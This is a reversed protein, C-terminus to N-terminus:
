NIFDSHYFHQLHPSLCHTRLYWTVFWSHFLSAAPLINWLCQSVLLLLVLHFIPKFSFSLPFQLSFLRFYLKLFQLSTSCRASIASCVYQHCGTFISPDTQINMNTIGLSKWSITKVEYHSKVHSLSISSYETNLCHFSNCWGALVYLSFYALLQDRLFAFM